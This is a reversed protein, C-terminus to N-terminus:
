KYKLKEVADIECLHDGLKMKDDEEVDDPPTYTGTFDPAAPYTFKGPYKKVLKKLEEMSKFYDDTKASDYAFAFQVEGYSVEKGDISEGFDYQLTKKSIYQAVNPMVSAIDGLLLDNNKATKFNEGNIWLMDVSGDTKGAQKEIFLKNITDKIDTIPIRKLTVGYQTKLNGALFNDVYKNIQESGSWMYFNVSQGKAETLITEWDNTLVAKEMGKSKCTVTLLTLTILISILKLAKKM